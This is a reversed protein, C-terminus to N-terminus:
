NLDNRFRVIYQPPKEITRRAEPPLHKWEEYNRDAQENAYEGFAIILEPVCWTDLIDNPRVHLVRAVYHAM